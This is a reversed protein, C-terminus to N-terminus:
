RSQSQLITQSAACPQRQVSALRALDSRLRLLGLGLVIVAISLVSISVTYGYKVAWSNLRDRRELDKDPKM